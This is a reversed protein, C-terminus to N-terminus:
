KTRFKGLEFKRINGLKNFKCYNIKRGKLNGIM